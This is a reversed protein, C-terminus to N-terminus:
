MVCAIWIALASGLPRRHFEGPRALLVHGAVLIARHREDADPDAQVRRSVDGRPISRWTEGDMELCRPAISPSWRRRWRSRLRCPAATSSEAAPQHIVHHMRRRHRHAVPARDAIREISKRHFARDVFERERRVDVRERKRWCSSAFLVSGSAAACARRSSCRPPPPPIPCRRQRGAARASDGHGHGEIGDDGFHRFDRGGAVLM